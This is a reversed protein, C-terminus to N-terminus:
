DIWFDSQLSDAISQVSIGRYDRDLRYIVSPDPKENIHKTLQEIELHLLLERNRSEYILVDKKTLNIYLSDLEQELAGSESRDCEKTSRGWLFAVVLSVLLSLVVAKIKLVENM